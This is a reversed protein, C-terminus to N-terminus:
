HTSTELLTGFTSTFGLHVGDFIAMLSHYMLSCLISVLEFHDNRALLAKRLVSSTADYRYLKGTTRGRTM